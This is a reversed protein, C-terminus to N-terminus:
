PEAVWLPMRLRRAALMAATIAVVPLRTAAATAALIAIRTVLAATAVLAMAAPKAIRFPMRLRRPTAPFLATMVIIIPAIGGALAAPAIAVVIIIVITAAAATASVAASTRRRRPPTATPQEEARMPPSLGHSQNKKKPDGACGRDAGQHQASGQASGHQRKWRPPLKKPSNRLTIIFRLMIQIAAAEANASLAQWLRPSAFELVVVVLSEMVCVLLPSAIVLM